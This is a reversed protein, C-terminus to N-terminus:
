ILGLHATALREEGLQVLLKTQVRENAGLLSGRMGSYLM